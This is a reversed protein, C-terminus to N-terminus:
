RVRGEVFPWLLVAATPIGVALTVFWAAARWRDRDPAPVLRSIGDVLHLTAAMVVLALLLRAVVNGSARVLTSYTRRDSGLVAIAAAWVVVWAFTVVGAIRATRWVPRDDSAMTSQSTM